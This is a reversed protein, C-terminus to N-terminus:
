SCHSTQNAKYLGLKMYKQGSPGGTIIMEKGQNVSLVNQIMINDIKAHIGKEGRRSHVDGLYPSYIM